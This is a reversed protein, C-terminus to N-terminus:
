CQSFAKQGLLDYDMSEGARFARLRSEKTM